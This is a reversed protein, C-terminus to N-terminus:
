SSDGKAIFRRDLLAAGLVGLAYSALDRPDFGIGLVLHGLMTARIADLRPTHYLQSFEVAACIAYAMAGRAVLRTGPVVASLWWMIMTAWLADGLVDRVDSGLPAGGLHVLLGVAITIMALAVYISQIRSM